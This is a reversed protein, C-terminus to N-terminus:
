EGGPIEEDSIVLPIFATNPWVPGNISMAWDADFVNNYDREVTVWHNRWHDPPPIYWGTAPDPDQPYTYPTFWTSIWDGLPINKIFGDLPDAIKIHYITGPDGPYAPADAEYGIILVWHSGSYVATPVPEHFKELTYLAWRTADISNNYYIWYHYYFHVPTHMYMTWALAHPDVGFDYAINMMRVDTLGDGVIGPLQVDRGLCTNDRM